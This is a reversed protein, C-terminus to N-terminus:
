LRVSAAVVGWVEIRVDAGSNGTSNNTLRVEIDVTNSSISKIRARMEHLERSDGSGGNIFKMSFGSLMAEKTDVSGTFATYNATITYTNGDSYNGIGSFKEFKITRAKGVKSNLSSVDSELAKISNENTKVKSELAQIDSENNSVKSKLSNIENVNTEVTSELHAIKNEQQNVTSELSDISNQLSRIDVFEDNVFMQGYVKMIASSDSRGVQVFQDEVKLTNFQIEVGEKADIDILGTESKIIQTAEGPIMELTTASGNVLNIPGEVTLGGDIHNERSELVAVDSDSFEEKM